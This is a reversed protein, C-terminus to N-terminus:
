YLIHSSAILEGPSVGSFTRFDHIFHAQDYYGFSYAIDTLRSAPDAKIAKLSTTFRTLRAFEKPTLGVSSRFRRILQRNSLGAKDSLADIKVNGGEQRILNTCYDVARDAKELQQLQQLLFEQVIESRKEATGAETIRSELDAARGKWIDGMVVADASLEDMPLGFFPYARGPLFCVSIYAVKGQHLVSSPRKLRPNLFSTPRDGFNFFVELCGDPVTMMTHPGMNFGEGEM